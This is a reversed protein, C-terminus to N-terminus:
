FCHVCPQHNKFWVARVVKGTKHLIRDCDKTWCGLVLLMVSARSNCLQMRLWKLYSDIVCYNGLAYFVILTSPQDTIRREKEKELLLIIADEEILYVRFDLLGIREVPVHHHQADVAVVQHKAASACGAAAASTATHYRMRWAYRLHLHHLDVDGEGELEVLAELARVGTLGTNEGRREEVEQAPKILEVPDVGPQASM